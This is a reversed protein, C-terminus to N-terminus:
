ACVWAKAREFDDDDFVRIPGAVSIGFWKVENAVWPIDRVIAIREIARRNRFGVAADDWLTAATFGTFDSGLRYLVRIRGRRALARNVAPRLVAQYDDGTLNGIGSIAVV